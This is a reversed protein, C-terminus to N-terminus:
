EMCNKNQASPIILFTISRPAFTITGANVQVGKMMPVSGDPQAQLKTGNLSVTPSALGSATLTFREAHASLAISHREAKDTNLALLAVGGKTNKACQAYIRLPTGSPAHPDLVTTGMTQKWIVAGWYDPKPQLNGSTLLSYDSAALTNHM